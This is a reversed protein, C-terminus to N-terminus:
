FSFLIKLISRIQQPQSPSTHEFGARQPHRRKSKRGERDRKHACDKECTGSGVSEHSAGPVPMLLTVHPNETSRPRAFTADFNKQTKSCRFQLVSPAVLAGSALGKHWSSIKNRKNNILDFSILV